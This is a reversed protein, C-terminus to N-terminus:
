SAGRYEVEFTSAFRGSSLSSVSAGATSAVLEFYDGAACELTWTRGAEHSLNNASPKGRAIGSQVGGNKFLSLMLATVTTNAAVVVSGTIQVYGARDVTVRSNNTSEDHWSHTDYVESGTGFTLTTDTTNITQTGGSQQVLRVKPRDFDSAAIIDGAAM